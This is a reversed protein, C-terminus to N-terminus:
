SFILKTCILDISCRVQSPQANLTVLRHSCPMPVGMQQLKAMFNNGGQITSGEFSITSVDRFFELIRPPLLLLTKKPANVQPIKRPHHVCSFCSVCGQRNSDFAQYYAQVFQRAIDSERQFTPQQQPAGAANTKKGWWTSKEVWL